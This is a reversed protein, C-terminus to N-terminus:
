MAAGVLLNPTPLCGKTPSGICFVVFWGKAPDSFQKPVDLQLMVKNGPRWNGQVSTFTDPPLETRKGPTVQFGYISIQTYPPYNPDPPPPVTFDVSLHPQGNQETRKVRLNMATLWPMNPDVPRYRVAPSENRQPVASLKLTKSGRNTNLVFTVASSGVRQCVQTKDARDDLVLGGHITKDPCVAGTIVPSLRDVTASNVGGFGQWEVTFIVDTGNVDVNGYMGKGRSQMCEKWNQVIFPDITIQVLSHFDDDSMEGSDKSCYKRKEEDVKNSAGGGSGEGYGFVSINGSGSANNNHLKSGEDCLERQYQSKASAKDISQYSNHVGSTLVDSCQDQAAAISSVLVPFCVLAARLPLAEPSRGNM